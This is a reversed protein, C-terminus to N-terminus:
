YLCPKVPNALNTKIEQGRSRGAEVEWLAPTVPMLWWARGLGQCKIQSLMQLPFRKVEAKKEQRKDTEPENAPLQVQPPGRM